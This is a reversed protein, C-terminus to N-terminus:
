LKATRAKLDGGERELGGRLIRRLIKGSASKPIGGVVRVSVVWKERVKRERVWRVVEEEVGERRVGEKLVIFAFPREGSYDDKVGVVACDEVKEHGLLLDELEAPAVQIGKVKIMEKIRDYITLFGASDISGIDGTRLFGDKDFAERTAKENGYYGM